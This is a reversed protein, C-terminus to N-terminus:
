DMPRRVGITEETKSRGFITQYERELDALLRQAKDPPWTSVSNRAWLFVQRGIEKSGTTARYAPILDLDNNEIMQNAKQFQVIAQRLNLRGAVLQNISDCKFSLARTVMESRTRLAQSRRGELVILRGVGILSTNDGYWTDAVYFLVASLVIAAAACVIM